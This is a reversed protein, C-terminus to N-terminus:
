AFAQGTRSRKRKWEYDKRLRAQHKKIQTELELFTKRASAPAGAADATAHLTGTPLSLNVSFTFVSKHPHRDFAGHLQVLDPSYRKLLAGIKRLHRSIAAEVPAPFEVHRYSIDIKM